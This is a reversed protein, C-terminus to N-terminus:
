LHVQEHNNDKQQHNLNPKLAEKEEKTYGKSM